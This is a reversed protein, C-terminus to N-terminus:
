QWWRSASRCHGCKKICAAVRRAQDNTGGYCNPPVIIKIAKGEHMEQADHILGMLIAYQVSLGSSAVLPKTDIGSIKKIENLVITRNSEDKRVENEFSTNEALNQLATYANAPTMAISERRRVHQIDSIYNENEKGNVIIVSGLQPYINVFFDINANLATDCIKDEQSILISSGKFDSVADASEVKQLEFNYGYVKRILDVDFSSPLAGIYNIRTNIQDLGNKRLTALIPITTSSFSIINKPETNNLHAIAWELICSLPHGLRIYDYATPLSGLASTDSNNSKFLSDFKELFQTKALEENYIDLRHTTTSLWGVPM